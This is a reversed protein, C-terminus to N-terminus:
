VLEDRLLSYMAFDIRRQQRANYRVSRLTGERTFGAREAVRCSAENLPDARLQLREFGLEGLVWGAVLRVARTVIGQGRADPAAWYGIDAVKQEPDIWHVGVAGLVAGTEADTIAFPSASGDRRLEGARRVWELADAETYPSPVEDLWRAIEPDNCAAALLGADAEQWARVSIVGDDLVPDPPAPAM